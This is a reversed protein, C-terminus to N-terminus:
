LRFRFLKDNDKDCVLWIGYALAERGGGSASSVQNIKIQLTSANRSVFLSSGKLYTEDGILTQGLNQYLGYIGTNSNDEKITEVLEWDDGDTIWEMQEDHPTSPRDGTSEPDFALLDLPFPNGNKTAVFSMTVDIEAGADGDFAAKTFSADDYADKFAAGSWTSLNTPLYTQSNTGSVATVTAVITLGDPLNFTQTDGVNLGDSFDAGDWNFFYMQDQYLGTGNGDSNAVSPQNCRLENTDLIGDNDDDLDVDDGIGDGDSDPAIYLRYDEIEGDAALGSPNAVDAADTAIRFRAFTNGSVIGPLSAWTLTVTANTCTASTREAADFTGNRNFDIWGAITGTGNCSVDVAYSTDTVIIPSFVTVGDDDDQGDVDFGTTDDGLADTSIHASVDTDVLAGMRLGNVVMHKTIDTGYSIPADGYDYAMCGSADYPDPSGVGTDTYTLDGTASVTVTEINSGAGPFHLLTGNEAYGLQGTAHTFSKVTNASLDWSWTCATLTGGGNRCNVVEGILYPTTGVVQAGIDGLNMEKPLTYPGASPTLVHDTGSQGKTLGTATVISKGDASLSIDIVEFASVGTTTQDVSFYFHSNLFVGGGSATSLTGGTYGSAALPTNIDATLTGETGTHVDYWSISTNTKSGADKVYYLLGQEHNYASDNIVSSSAPPSYFATEVGTTMDVYKLDGAEVFHVKGLDAGSQCFGGPTGIAYGMSPFFFIAILLFIKELYKRVTELISPLFDTNEM